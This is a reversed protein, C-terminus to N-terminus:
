YGVDCDPYRDALDDIDISPGDLTSGDQFQWGVQITYTNNSLVVAKLNHHDHRVPRQGM